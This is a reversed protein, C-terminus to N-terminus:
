PYYRRYYAIGLRVGAGHCAAIMKDCEVTNMAMPKECLVHKGARAAAITQVAHLHVPTAIYIADIKSDRILGEWSEYWSPAGFEKAFSEAQDSRARSVALLECNRHDRLAPAVRKRAIDGCGILGWGISTATMTEDSSTPNAM